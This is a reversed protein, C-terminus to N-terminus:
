SLNEKTKNCKWIAMPHASVNNLMYGEFILEKTQRGITNKDFQIM